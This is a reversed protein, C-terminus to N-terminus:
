CRNRARSALFACWRPLPRGHRRHRDADQRRHLRRLRARWLLVGPGHAKARRDARMGQTGLCPLCVWLPRRQLQVHAGREGQPRAQHLHGHADEQRHDVQCRLLQPQVLPEPVKRPRGEENRRHVARALTLARLASTPDPRRVIDKDLAMFYFHKIGDTAYEKMKRAFVVPGIVEGVYEYM